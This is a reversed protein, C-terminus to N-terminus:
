VLLLTYTCTKLEYGTTDDSKIVYHAQEKIELLKDDKRIGLYIDKLRYM